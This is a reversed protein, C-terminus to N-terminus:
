LNQFETLKQPDLNEILLWILSDNEDIGFIINQSAITKSAAGTDSLMILLRNTHVFVQLSSPEDKIANDPWGDVAVLPYGTLESPISSGLIPFDKSIPGPLLLSVGVIQRTAKDIEIEVLTTKLNGTRWYLHTGSPRPVCGFKFPLYDGFATETRECLKSGIVKLM